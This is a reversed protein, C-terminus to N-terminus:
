NNGLEQLMNEAHDHLEPFDWSLDFCTQFDKRAKPINDLELFVEGRECLYWVSDPALEIVRNYARLAAEFDDEDLAQQIQVVVEGEMAWDQVYPDVGEALNNCRNFSDLALDYDSLEIYTFGLLCHSYPADPELYTLQTYFDVATEYEEDEYAWDGEIQTIVIQSREQWYVDEVNEQCEEFDDIAEDYLGYIFLREGRECQLWDPAASDDIAEDLPLLLEDISADTEALMDSLSLAEMGVAVAYLDDLNQDAALNKCRDFDAAARDWAFLERNITGRQCNSFAIEPESNIAESYFRLAEQYDNREYAESANDLFEQTKANAEIPPRPGLPSPSDTEPRGNGPSRAPPNNNDFSAADFEDDGDGLVNILVVALLVLLVFGGVGAIIKNRKSKAPSVATQGGVATPLEDAVVTPVDEVVATALEPEVPPLLVDEEVVPTEQLRPATVNAITAPETASQLATVFDGTTAYRDDPKKALSKLIVRELAEPIDPNYKYPPPLPAQIHKIVIAMPTEAQYPPRGTVMEYLIVGLSYMDTRYDIGQGMGQEPSMYAPTGLIGGTKTLKVSAEVLKALGFDTLLCNGRKDVLINSPKVDRHVIENSHAYDLADGVQSIIRRIQALSLPQNELIWETLTGSEVMRMAMFTYGDEEGYDYVPLIHPHELKAIVRAEQKFRAVFEPDSAYYRPLIKLAVYRDMRPQFAKYVAAMGGEGLPAVIQYAGLQKGTLDEM